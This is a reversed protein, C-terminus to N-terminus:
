DVVTASPIGSTFVSTVEAHCNPCYVEETERCGPTTDNEDIELHAGCKPCSCYVM